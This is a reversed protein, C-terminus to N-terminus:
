IIIVIKKKIKEKDPKQPLFTQRQGYSTQQEFYKYYQVNTTNKNYYNSYGNSYEAQYGNGNMQQQGNCNKNTIHNKSEEKGTKKSNFIGM